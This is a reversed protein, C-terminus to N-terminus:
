FTPAHLLVGIKGMEVGPGSHKKPPEENHHVLLPSLYTRQSVLGGYVEKGYGEM